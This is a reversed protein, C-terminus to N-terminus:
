AAGAKRLHRDALVVLTGAAIGGILISWEGALPFLVPCLSGGALGAIRNVPRRANIVMLLIYLPTLMLVARLVDDGVWESLFYGAVTGAMGLGYLMLGFGIFYQLLRRPELRGELMGLQVWSTIALMQMLLLKRWFPVSPTNIGLMPMGSITMMLMRMNALAVATFIVALSAGATHLSAMAVQGPMGWVFLTTAMAMSLDFGAERAIASFGVMSAFISVGPVGIAAVAGRTRDSSAPWGPSAPGGEGSDPADTNRKRSAM